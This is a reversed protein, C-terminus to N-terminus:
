GSIARQYYDDSGIFGAVVDENTLGKAFQSVWYDVEASSPARHLFHQYDGEVRIGEEESSAAFGYAISARTVGAALQQMWYSEGSSDASRSLLDLYLADIWAKNTNGAHQYFEPSAIFDAQLQEDTLGQQMRGTWYELGSADPSRGLFQQYAPTIITGFYEASHTLSTAITSRPTGGVLLGHWYALGTSDPARGLLDEYVQTVFLLVPDAVTVNATSSLSSQDKDQVTITQSGGAGFTLSFTHQGNDSATFSYAGPLSALEDSSTWKVTGRYGTVENGFADHVTLIASVAIGVQATSPVSLDFQSAAGPNVTVPASGTLTANATDTATVTQAGATELTGSFTHTGHDAETFKYDAPLQAHPDTSSFHVVGTYAPNAVGNLLATVKFTSALGATLPSSFGTVQLGTVTTSYSFRDGTTVAGSEAM